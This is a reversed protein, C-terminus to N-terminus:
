NAAIAIITRDILMPQVCDLVPVGANSAAIPFAFLEPSVRACNAGSRPPCSVQRFKVIFVIKFKANEL